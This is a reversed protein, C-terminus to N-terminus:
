RYDFEWKQQRSLLRGRASDLARRVQSLGLFARSYQPAVKTQKGDNDEISRLHKEELEVDNHHNTNILVDLIVMARESGGATISLGEVEEEKDKLQKQLAIIDTNRARIDNNKKDVTAIYNTIKKQFDKIDLKHEKILAAKTAM